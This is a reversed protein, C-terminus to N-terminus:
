ETIPYLNAGNSGVVLLTSGDVAAVAVLDDGKALLRSTFSRGDDESVLMVGGNAVLVIRGDDLRIGSNITSRLDVDVPEWDIGNNDSRFINGRLGVALLGSNPLEVMDMFSGFYIEELKQWHHGNDSSRAMFGMEGLLFLDGNALRKIRNFHPLIASREDLYLAEDDAKLEELYLRDEEFLLEDHFEESWSRGGDVSRYFLGYAGVAVIEDNGLALIDLLPKDKQPLNQSIKWSAGGDQTALVTVDHGVAWGQRDDAFTVSTLMTTLPAPSQIWSQGDGRLVTGRDGVLVWKDGASQIDLLLSQSAKPAIFAEHLNGADNALATASLLATSFLIRYLM